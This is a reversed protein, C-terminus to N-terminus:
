ERDRFAMHGSWPTLRAEAQQLAATFIIGLVACLLIGVYLKEIEFTEWANWIMAGIGYNASVFEVSVVVILSMGLALRIGTFILPLSAPLIVRTLLQRTTAGYNRAVEFYVRSITQVGAMTNILVLFFCGIAIAAIKSSEGIGFIIMLLPFIALKPVPYTAAVLPDIFLRLKESVGMALGLLIGPITGIVFGAFVRLLTISLNTQIEGDTLMSLFTGAIRTPVPFFLPDLVGLRGLIEWLILVSFFSILPFAWSRFREATRTM